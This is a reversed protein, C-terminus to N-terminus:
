KDWGIGGKDDSDSSVTEYTYSYSDDKLFDAEEVGTEQNNTGSFEGDRSSASESGAQTAGASDDAAEPTAVADFATDEFWIGTRWPETAWHWYSEQDLSVIMEEYVARQLDELLTECADYSHLAPSSRTREPMELQPYDGELADITQDIDEIIEEVTKLCGASLLVILVLLCSTVRSRM